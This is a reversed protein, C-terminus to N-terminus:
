MCLASELTFNTSRRHAAHPSHLRTELVRSRHSQSKGLGQRPPPLPQAMRADTRRDLAQAFERIRRRIWRRLAAFFGKILPSDRDSILDSRVSPTVARPVPADKSRTANLNGGIWGRQLLKRM